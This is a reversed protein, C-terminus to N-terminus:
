PRASCAAAEISRLSTPPARVAAQSPRSLTTRCACVTGSRRPPPRSAPSGRRQLDEGRPSQELRARPSQGRRAKPAPRRPKTGTTVAEAASNAKKGGLPPRATAEQAAFPRNDYRAGGALLYPNVRPASAVQCAAALSCVGPPGPGAIGGGGAAPLGPGTPPGGGELGGTGPRTRASSVSTRGRTEAVGGASAGGDGGDGTSSAAM